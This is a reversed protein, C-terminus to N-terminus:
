KADHDNPVEKRYERPAFEIPILYPYGPQYFGRRAWREWRRTSATKKQRRKQRRAGPFGYHARGSSIKTRATRSDGNGAAKNYGTM